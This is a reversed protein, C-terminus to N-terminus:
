FTFSSKLKLNKKDLTIKFNDFSNSELIKKVEELQEITKSTFLVNCERNETIYNELMVEKFQKVLQSLRILPYIADITTSEKLIKIEKNIQTDKRKLKKELRKYKSRFYKQERPSLTLIPNKLIKNAQKNLSKEKSILLAREFVLSTAILITIICIRIAMFTISHLPLKEFENSSYEKTMFNSFHKHSASNLAIINATDYSHQNISEIDFGSTIINKFTNYSKTSIGLQETFFNGINTIQSTGGILYISEIKEEHEARYGIDWRKFEQILPHFVRNMIEAFDKQQKDASSLLDETLFFSNEHKFILADEISIQYTNSIVEDILKGAIHSIHLSVIRRNKIFYAKTTEHGLDMVVFNNEEFKKDVYGQIISCESTLIHPKCNREELLNYFHDFNNKEVISVIADMNEKNDILHSAFHFPTLYPLDEELQFPILSDAKKRNTTPLILNRITINKAPFLSIIKKIEINNEELNSIYKRIIDAQLHELTYEESINNNFKRMIVDTFTIYVPNKKEHSFVVFKISYSGIDIALTSM